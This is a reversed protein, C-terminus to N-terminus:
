FYFVLVKARTKKKIHLMDSDRRSISLIFKEESIKALLFALNEGQKRRHLM